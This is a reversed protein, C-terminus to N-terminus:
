LTALGKSGSPTVSSRNNWLAGPPIILLNSCSILLTYRLNQEWAIYILENRPKYKLRGDFNFKRIRSIHFSIPPFFFFSLFFFIIKSIVLGQLKHQPEHSSVQQMTCTANARPRRGGAKWFLLIFSLVYDQSRAPCAPSYFLFSQCSCSPFCLLFCDCVKPKLWLTACERPM